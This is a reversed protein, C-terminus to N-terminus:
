CSWNRSPNESAVSAQLYGAYPDKVPVLEERRLDGGEPAAHEPEAQPTACVQEKVERWAVALTSLVSLAERFPQESQQAHGAVIRKLCYSYLGALTHTFPANVSHDLATLLEEVAEEAKTVARSRSLRDHTKLCGIAAKVNDIAVDYLMTVLEMPHASRIRNELYERQLRQSTEKDM